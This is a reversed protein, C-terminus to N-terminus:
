SPRCRPALQVRVVLGAKFCALYHVALAIRNPMLSAVRDGRELGLGLYARALGSSREELERWSLEREASAMATDDPRSELGVRLLDDLAVAPSALSTGEILM